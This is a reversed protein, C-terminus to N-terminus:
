LRGGNEIILIGASLIKLADALGDVQNCLVLNRGACFGAAAEPNSFYHGAKRFTVRWPSHQKECYAFSVAGQNTLLAGCERYQMDDNM